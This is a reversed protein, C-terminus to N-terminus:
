RFNKAKGYTRPNTRLYMNMFDNIQANYLSMNTNYASIDKMRHSLIAMAYYEYASDYPHPLALVKNSDDAMTLRVQTKQIVVVVDGAVEATFELSVPDGDLLYCSLTRPLCNYNVIPVELGNLVVKRIALTSDVGEVEYILTGVEADFKEIYYEKKFDLVKSDVESVLKAITESNASIVNNKLVESVVSELTAM